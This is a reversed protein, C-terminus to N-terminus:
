VMSFLSQPNFAIVYKKLRNIAKTNTHKKIEGLHTIQYNYIWITNDFDNTDSDFIEFYVKCDLVHNAIVIPSKERIIKKAYGVADDVNLFFKDEGYSKEVKLIKGEANRSVIEATWFTVRFRKEAFDTNKM